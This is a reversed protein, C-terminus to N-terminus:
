KDAWYAALGVMSWEREPDARYLPNMAFTTVRAAGSTTTGHAIVAANATSAKQAETMLWMGSALIDASAAPFRGDVSMTAPVSTFWTPPDMIATDRAPSAGTIPSAAGGVNNWNVIGSVGSGSPVAAAAFGSVLGGSTLFNAGNLGAGIYGGGAQFYSTLRARAIALNAATPWSGTNWIVDYNPLPDTAASSIAATSMFDPTFGLNQLSWVDQNRAGTLVLIRPKRDIPETAPAAGNTRYFWVDNARGISALRTKTASGADFIASGAPMVRGSPTTFSGLALEATLGEDM